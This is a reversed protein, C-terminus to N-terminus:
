FRIIRGTMLEWARVRCSFLERYETCESAPSTSCILIAPILNASFKMTKQTILRCQIRSVYSRSIGHKEAIIYHPVHKNDMAYEFYEKFIEFIEPRMQQKAYKYANAILENRTTENVLNEIEDTDSQLVEVLTLTKNEDLTADVTEELRSVVHSNYKNDRRFHMGIENEIVRFAYTAFTLGRTTDYSDISKLLGVYSTSLIDEYDSYEMYKKTIQFCLKQNQMFLKNRASLDGSQAKLFLEVSNQKRPQSAGQICDEILTM